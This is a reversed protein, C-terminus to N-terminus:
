EKRIAKVTALFSDTLKHKGRAKLELLITLLQDAADECSKVIRELQRNHQSTIRAGSLDEKAPAKLNILLEHLRSAVLEIELHSEVAGAVSHYREITGSILSNGFDIFQVAATAIALASLADM